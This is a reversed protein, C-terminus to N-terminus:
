RTAADAALRSYLRQQLDLEAIRRPLLAKRVASASDAECNALPVDLLTKRDYCHSGNAPGRLLFLHQETVWSGKRRIIPEEGPSGLMNRGVYSLNSADIGLLNVITPAFDIQGVPKSILQAPAGPVRVMMPVREAATWHAIDNSFGLAHALEPQWRFGASHDGTVVIVSKELLGERALGDLFEGLAKDFYHMGHLYNGFSQGEWPKVDLEKHAAPFEGFPYHLSLTILWAVFPQRTAALRPMMQLLFDRDNLGWGISEAPAFDGAFYSRFFGLNPHMVRRNWFGPSFPVASLSQYGRAALVSPLGVLHNSENAFAAAGQREPFQSTLMLWEADSTRGEDTQDIMNSFYLNEAALKRLNPMVDRGNIRLNVIPEQLSEVQIVILNKGAAAGFWPGTGARRPAREKLWNLSEEFVAESVLGTALQRKFLLWGDLVHFPLPGIQEVLSLNSFRQTVISYDARIAATTQWAAVAAVLTAATLALVRPAPSGAPERNRWEAIVIPVVLLLEVFDWFDRFTVWERAMDAIGSVQGIALLAVAPFMDGFWAFYLHDVILLTSSAAVILWAVVARWRRSPLLWLLVAPGAGGLLVGWVASSKWALRADLMFSAQHALFAVVCWGVLVNDLRFKGLPGSPKAWLLILGFLAVLTPAVESFLVSM